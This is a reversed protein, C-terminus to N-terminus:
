KRIEMKYWSLYAEPVGKSYKWSEMPKGNSYHEVIGWRAKGGFLKRICFVVKLGLVSPDIRSIGVYEYENKVQGNWVM